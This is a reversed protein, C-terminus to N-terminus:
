SPEDIETMKQGTMKYYNYDSDSSQLTFGMKIFCKISAVNEKKITATLDLKKEIQFKRIAASLLRQSLKLGRMEPNLNISVEALYKEPNVDFRCMGLKDQMHANGVYGVYLYRNENKLSSEYSTSHLKWNIEDTTISMARTLSDNRWMWIDKSDAQTAELVDIKDYM